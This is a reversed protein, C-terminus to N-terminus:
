GTAYAEYTTTVTPTVVITAGSGIATSTSTNIWIITSGSYPIPSYTISSVSYSTSSTPTFRWAENTATWTSPFDRGPAATAASGTANQVGVIAYGSNWGPCVTHNRIHVEIINTTEYLIIQSTLYQGPCDTPNYMDTHCYDVVFKRNPAVGITSYTITGGALAYVDCWAGCICNLVSTNGLLPASIQWPDASSALSLNFSLNGNDGIVLGTAPTGYFDFTFGIPLANSYIDDVAIGANIPTEGLITAALTTSTCHGTDTISIQANINACFLFLALTLLLQKKM